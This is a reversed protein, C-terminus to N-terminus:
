LKNGTFGTHEKYHKLGERIDISFEIPHPMFRLEIISTETEFESNYPIPVHVYVLFNKTPDGNLRGSDSLALINKEESTRLVKGEIM